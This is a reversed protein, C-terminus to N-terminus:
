GRVVTGTCDSVALQGHALTDRSLDSFAKIKLLRDRAKVPGLSELDQALDALLQRVEDLGSAVGDLFLRTYSAASLMTHTCKKM